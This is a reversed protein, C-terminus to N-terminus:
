TVVPVSPFYNAGWHHSQAGAYRPGFCHSGRAVRHGGDYKEHTGGSFARRLDDGAIRRGRLSTRAVAPQMRKDKSGLGLPM